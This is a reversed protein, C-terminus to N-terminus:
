HAEIPAHATLRVPTIDCTPVPKEFPFEAHCKGDRGVNNDVQYVRLQCDHSAVVLFDPSEEHKSWVLDSVKAGPGYALKVDENLSDPDISPASAHTVVPASFAAASLTAMAVEVSIIPFKHYSSIFHLPLLLTSLSIQRIAAETPSSPHHFVSCPLNDSEPFQHSCLFSFFILCSARLPHFFNQQHPQHSSTTPPSQPKVLRVALRM